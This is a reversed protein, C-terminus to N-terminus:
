NGNKVQKLSKIIQMSHKQWEQELSVACNFSGLVLKQRISFVFMVNYIKTDHASSYFRFVYIKIGNVMLPESDIFYIRGSSRLRQEIKKGEPIVEVSHLKNSSANFAVNVTGSANSYVETPLNSSSYKEAMLKKDMLNFGSPLQIEAKHSLIITSKWQSISFSSFAFIIGLSVFFQYAQSKKGM